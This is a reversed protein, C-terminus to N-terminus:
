SLQAGGTGVIRAVEGLLLIRLLPCCRADLALETVELLQLLEVEELMPEVDANVRYLLELVRLIEVAAVLMDPELQRDVAL